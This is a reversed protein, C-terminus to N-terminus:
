RIKQQALSSYTKGIEVIEGMTVQDRLEMVYFLQAPNSGHTQTHNKENQM